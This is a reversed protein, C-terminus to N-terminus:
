IQKPPIIEEMFKLKTKYANIKYSSSIEEKNEIPITKNLYNIEEISM